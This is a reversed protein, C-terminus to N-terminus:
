PHEEAAPIVSLDAGDMGALPAVAQCVQVGNVLQKVGPTALLASTLPYTIQDEIDTPSMGRWQTFVIQQNEGIDPIADVPVKSLTVGDMGWDFPAIMVGMFLSLVLLIIIVLPNNQCFQILRSSLSDPETKM